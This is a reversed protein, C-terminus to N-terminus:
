RSDRRILPNAKRRWVELHVAIRARLIRLLSDLVELLHAVEEHPGLRGIRSRSQRDRNYPKTPRLVILGIGRALARRRIVRAVLVPIVDDHAAYARLIEGNRGVLIHMQEDPM